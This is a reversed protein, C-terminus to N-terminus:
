LTGTKDAVERERLNDTAEIDKIVKKVNREFTSVDATKDTLEETAMVTIVTGDIQNNPDVIAGIYHMDGNNWEVMYYRDNGEFRHVIQYNKDVSSAYGILGQMLIEVQQLNNPDTTTGVHWEGGITAVGEKGEYVYFDGDKDKTWNSGLAMRFGNMEVMQPNDFAQNLSPKSATACGAILLMAMASILVVMIRKM